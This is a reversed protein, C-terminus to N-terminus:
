RLDVRVSSLRFPFLFFIFFRKSEFVGRVHRLVRHPSHTQFNVFIHSHYQSISFFKGLGFTCAPKLNLVSRQSQPLSSARIRNLRSVEYVYIYICVCVCVCRRLLDWRIQMCGLGLRIHVLSDGGRVLLKSMPLFVGCSDTNLSM